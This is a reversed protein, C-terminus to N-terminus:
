IGVVLKQIIQRRREGLEKRNKEPRRLTASKEPMEELYRNLDGSNDM